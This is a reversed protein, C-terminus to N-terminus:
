FSYQWLKSHLNTKCCNYSKNIHFNDDATTTKWCYVNKTYIKGLTLRSHIFKIWTIQQVKWNRIIIILYSYVNCIKTKPSLLISGELSHIKLRDTLLLSGNATRALFRNVGTCSTPKHFCFYNKFLLFCQRWSRRM